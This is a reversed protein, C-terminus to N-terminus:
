SNQYHIAQQATPIQRTQITRIEAQYTIISKKYIVYHPRRKVNQGKQFRGRHVKHVRKNGPVSVDSAPIDSEESTQSSLAVHSFDSRLDVPTLPSPLVSTTTSPVRFVFDRDYEILSCDSQSSQVSNSDFPALISVLPLDYSHFTHTFEQESSSM